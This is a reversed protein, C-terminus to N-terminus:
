LNVDIDTGSFCCWVLTEGIRRSVPDFYMSVVFILLIVIISKILIDSSTIKVRQNEDYKVATLATECWENINIKEVNWNKNYQQDM